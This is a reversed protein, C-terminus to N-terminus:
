RVSAGDASVEKPTLDVFDADQEAFRLLREGLQARLSSMEIEAGLENRWAQIAMLLFAFAYFFPDFVDSISNLGAICDLSPLPRENTPLFGYEANLEAILKPTDDALAFGLWRLFRHVAREAEEEANLPAKPYRFPAVRVIPREAGDRVLEVKVETCHSPEGFFPLRRYRARVTLTLNNFRVSREVWEM